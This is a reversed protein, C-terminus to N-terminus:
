PAIGTNWTYQKVECEGDGLEYWHVWERYEQTEDDTDKAGLLARVMRDITWLRHHSGDYQGTKAIQLANHIRRSQENDIRERLEEMQALTFAM